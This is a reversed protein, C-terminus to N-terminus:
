RSTQLRDPLENLEGIFPRFGNFIGTVFMSAVADVGVGNPVNKQYARRNGDGSSSLSFAIFRVKSTM